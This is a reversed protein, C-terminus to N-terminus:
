LLEASSRNFNLFKMVFKATVHIPGLVDSFIAQCSGFSIDVDDAVQRITIQCNDMIIKKVNEVNMSQQHAPTDLTSTM